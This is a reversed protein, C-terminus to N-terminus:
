GTCDVAMQMVQSGENFNAVMTSNAKQIEKPSARATKDLNSRNTAAKAKENNKKRKVKNPAGTAIEDFVVQGPTKRKVTERKCITKQAELKALKNSRLSHEGGNKESSGQKNVNAVSTTRVSVAKTSTKAGGKGKM